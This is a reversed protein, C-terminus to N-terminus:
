DVSFLPKVTEEAVLHQAVTVAPGNWKTRFFEALREHWAAQKLAYAKIGAAAEAFLDKRWWRAQWALYRLFEDMMEEDLSGPATWIWSMVRKSTGPANRLARAGRGVGIMALTKRAAMDSEEADGDLQVDEPRLERLHSHAKIGKLAILAARGQRYRSAYSQGNHFSILHHKAHLRSRLSVLSNECQAVRLKAEMEILGSICGHHPDNINAPLDSLMFLKITEAKPPPAEPNRAAEHADLASGAGPMYIKQLARFKNIKVLLSHRWEEIKNERDAAILVTGKLQTLIRRRYLKSYSVM